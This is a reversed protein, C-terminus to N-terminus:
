AAVKGIVGAAFNLVDGGVRKRTYFEVFPKQTLNDRIISIGMRDVIKYFEQWDALCVSLTNAAVAPMTTSMSVPLGLLMSPQGATINPQWLPLEDSASVLQLAAAVTSRNMVWTARNMYEEVLGYKVAVFGTYTLASANGMNIQEVKGYEPTGATTVSDYTLFGRPQAVGTGEVFAAGEGRAFRRAVHNALWQEINISSDELLNLSAYPKAYITHVFIEKKNLQPTTTKSGAVTEGEWGFGAQDFDVLYKISSTSITEVGALARIADIERVQTIIQSSMSPVVTYGGDADSGATLDKVMQPAMALEAREAKSRLYAEFAKAYNKYGEVDAKLNKIESYKAGGDTFAKCSISFELAARRIDAAEKANITGNSPRKMAAELDDIRKQMAKELNETAVRAEDIEAQRNAIAEAFKSMQEKVLVDNNNKEVLGKLMVFDKQLIEINEKSEAGIKKVENLVEAVVGKNKADALAADQNTNDDNAEWMSKIM